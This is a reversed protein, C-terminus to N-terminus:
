FVSNRIVRTQYVYIISHFRDAKRVPILCPTGRSQQSFPDSDAALAHAPRRLGLAALRCTAPRSLPAQRSEEKQVSMRARKQQVILAHLAQVSESLHAIAAFCIRQRLRWDWAHGSCTKIEAVSRIAVCKRAAMGLLLKRSVARIKLNLYIADL